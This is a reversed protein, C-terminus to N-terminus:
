RFSRIASIGKEKAVIGNLAFDKQFIVKFSLM